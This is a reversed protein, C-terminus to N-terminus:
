FLPKGASFEDDIIEESYSKVESDEIYVTDLFSKINKLYETDYSYDIEQPPSEMEWNLLEKKEKLKQNETKWVNNEFDTNTSLYFVKVAKKQGIRFCRDRAQKIVQPNYWSDLFIINNAEQYNLGTENAKISALMIAKKKYEKFNRISTERAKTTMQGITKLCMYKMCCLESYIYNLEETYLSFVIVKEYDPIKELILKLVKIKSDFFVNEDKFGYLSQCTLLKSKQPFSKNEALKSIVIEPVPLLFKYQILNPLNIEKQIKSSFKSESIIPIFSRCEEKISDIENKAIFDYAEELFKPNKIFTELIYLEKTSNSLPSATLAIRYDCKIHSLSRHSINASSQNIIKQPEDFIVLPFNTEKFFMNCNKSVLTQYSTLIVDYGIVQLLNDNCLNEKDVGHYKYVKLKKDEFQNFEYIEKEWPDIINNAPAIVLIPNNNEENIYCQNILSISLFTKGLGTDLNLICYHYENLFDVTNKLIESQFFFLEKEQAPEKTNHYSELRKAYFKYLVDQEPTRNTTFNRIMM